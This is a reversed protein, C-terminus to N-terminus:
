LLWKIYLVVVRFTGDEDCGKKMMIFWKIYLAEVRFTGDEDCGKKMM